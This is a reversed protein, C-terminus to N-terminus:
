TDFCFGWSSDLIGCVFCTILKVYCSSGRLLGLLAIEPTCCQTNCQAGFNCPAWSIQLSHSPVNFGQCPTLWPQAHPVNQQIAALRGSVDGHIVESNFALVAGHEEADKRYSAMLRCMCPLMITDAHAQLERMCHPRQAHNGLHPLLHYSVSPFGQAKSAAICTM